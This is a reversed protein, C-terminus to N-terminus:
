RKADVEDIGQGVAIRQLLDGHLRRREDHDGDSQREAIEGIDPIDAGFSLKQDAGDGAAPERNFGM